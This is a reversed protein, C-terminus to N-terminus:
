WELYAIVPVFDCEIQAAKMLGKKKLDRLQSQMIQELYTVDGAAYM